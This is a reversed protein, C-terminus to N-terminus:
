ICKLNKSMSTTWVSRQLDQFRSLQEKNNEMSNYINPSMPRGSLFHTKVSDRKRKPTFQASGSQATQFLWERHSATGRRPANLM